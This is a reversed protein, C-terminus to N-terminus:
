LNNNLSLSYAKAAEFCARIKNFEPDARDTSYVKDSDFWIQWDELTKLKCGIYIMDDKIGFSWKCFIPLDAGRLDAGRLDARRLDAGRLDAGRLDAGRLDAGRLDARRLDAGRLDAGSRVAEIVTDKV